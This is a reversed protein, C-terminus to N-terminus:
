VKLGHGKTSSTSNLPFSNVISKEKTLNEIELKLRHNQEVLSVIKQLAVELESRITQLERHHAQRATNTRHPTPQVISDSAKARAEAAAQIDNILEKFEQRSKKISGRKRGAEIAVTDKNITYPPQINIPTNTTLRQLASRYNDIASM